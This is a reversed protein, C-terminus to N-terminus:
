TSSGKIIKKSESEAIRAWEKHKAIITTRMFSRSPINQSPSGFENIAAVQAVPIGPRGNESPYKSGEFWGVKGVKGQLNNLANQLRKTGEGEIRIVSPM